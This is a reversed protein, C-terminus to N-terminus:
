LIITHNKEDYQFESDQLDSDQFLKNLQEQSVIIKNICDVMEIGDYSIQSLNDPSQSPSVHLSDHPTDNPSDPVM